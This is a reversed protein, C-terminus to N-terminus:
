KGQFLNGDKDKVIVQEFLYNETNECVIGNKTIDVNKLQINSLPMEPLGTFIGNGAGRCTINDM